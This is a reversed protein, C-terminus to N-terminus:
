RENRCLAGEMCADWGISATGVANDSAYRPDGALPPEDMREALLKKLLASSAVGGSILVPHCGYTSRLNAILKSLTRALCDYVAFAVEEHPTGIAILRQAQTEAGSLSCDLGRVCSPIRITRDLAGGALTEMHKGSPFPLGMAVGVRDVFQGAHLDGSGGLHTIADIKGDSVSVSLADTTGGSLHLAYFRDLHLLQENGILAARVHGKQHNMKLLPVHLAGAIAQASAIGALFVPMYSDPAATPSASVSVAQVSEASIEQFLADTLAPLNRVHQFVGDSQRLGREGQAVSLMTRQEFVVGTAGVCAVSTTYCSTDIGICCGTMTSRM